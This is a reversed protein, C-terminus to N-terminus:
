GDGYRRISKYRRLNPKRRTQENNSIIENSVVNSETDNVGNVTRTSENDFSLPNEVTEAIPTTSEEPYLHPYFLKHLRDVDEVTLGDPQTSLQNIWDFDELTWPRWKAENADDLVKLVGPLDPKLFEEEPLLFYDLPFRHPNIESIVKFLQSLTDSDIDNIFFDIFKVDVFKKFISLPVALVAIPMFGHNVGCIESCQGFFLGSRKIFLNAQNLRGPCADVKLGFSPVTWSHLVDAASVMLRIHTKIPLIVRKDTELLRYGVKGSQMSFLLEDFVVMYSAFKINFGKPICATIVERSFDSIEYSWFWQHGLVKLTVGPTSLEDMSYLLTFSPVSLILLILAPISTWLIELEKSHVFKSSQSNHREIFFYVTFFLLWGVFIVIIILLFSLHQNFYLIGEMSPTAPDQFFMQWARPADASVFRVFGSNLFLILLFAIFQQSFLRMTTQSTLM